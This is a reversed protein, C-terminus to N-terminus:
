KQAGFLAFSLYEISASQKVRYHISEDGSKDRSLKKMLKLNSKNTADEIVKRIVEPEKSSNFYDTLIARREPNGLMDM